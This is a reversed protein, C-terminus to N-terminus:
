ESEVSGMLQLTSDRPDVSGVGDEDDEDKREIRRTCSSMGASGHRISWQCQRKVTVTVCQCHAVVQGFWHCHCDCDDNGKVMSRKVQVVVLPEQNKDEWRCAREDSLM